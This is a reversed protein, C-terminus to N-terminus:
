RRRRSSQSTCSDSLRPSCGHRLLLSDFQALYLELEDSEIDSVTTVSRVDLAALNPMSGTTGCEMEMDPLPHTGYDTFFRTLESEDSSTLSTISLPLTPTLSLQECLGEDLLVASSRSFTRPTEAGDEDEAEGMDLVEDIDEDLRDLLEGLSSGPVDEQRPTVEEEEEAEEEGEGDSVDFEVASRAKKTPESGRAPAPSKKMAGKSSTPEIKSKPSPSRAAAKPSHSRAARQPSPGHAARRPSPSRAKPKTPPQPLTHKHQLALAVPKPRAPAAKHKPKPAAAPKQPAPQARPRSTSRSGQSRTRSNTRQRQRRCPRRAGTARRGATWRHVLRQMRLMAVVAWAAARFKRVPKLLRRYDPLFCGGTLQVMKELTLTETEQYGGLLIMLYRKQWCLARRYSEARMYRSYAEQVRGDDGEGQTSVPAPRAALRLRELEADLQDIHSQLLSRERGWQARESELQEKYRALIADDVASEVAADAPVPSPAPAPAPSPEDDRGALEAALQLLRTRTREAETNIDVVAAVATLLQAATRSLEAVARGHDAAPRQVDEAATKHAAQVQRLEQQLRKLKGQLPKVREAATTRVEACAEDVQTELKEAQQEQETVRQELQQASRGGSEAQGRGQDLEQSLQAARGRECEVCALMDRCRQQEAGLQEALRQVAGRGSRKACLESVREGAGDLKALCAQVRQLDQCGTDTTRILEQMIKDERDVLQQTATKAAAFEHLQSDLSSRTQDLREDGKRLESLAQALDTEMASLAGRQESLRGTLALKSKHEGDLSTQMERVQSLEEKLDSSLKSVKDNLSDQKRKLESVLRAVARRLTATEMDSVEVASDSAQSRPTLQSPSAYAKVFRLEMLSLAQLGETHLKTLLQQLRRCLQPDLLEDASSEEATSALPTDDAPRAVSTRRVMQVLQAEVERRREQETRKESSLQDLAREMARAREGAEHAQEKWHKEDHTLSELEAVRGKLYANEANVDSQDAPREDSKMDKELQAVRESYEQLRLMLEEVRAEKEAVAARSEELQRALQDREATLQGCQQALQQLQQDGAAQMRQSEVLRQEMEASRSQFSELQTIYSDIEKKANELEKGLHSETQELKSVTESATQLRQTLDGQDDAGASSVLDELRSLLDQIQRDKSQSEDEVLHLRSELSRLRQLLDEIDNHASEVSKSETALSSAPQYDEPPPETKSGMPTFYDARPESPPEKESETKESGSRRSHASTPTPVSIQDDMDVLPPEQYDEVFQAGRPERYPVSARHTWPLYCQQDGPRPTARGHSSASTLSLNPQSPATTCMEEMSYFRNRPVRVAPVSDSTRGRRRSASDESESSSTLKELFAPLNPSPTLPRQEGVTGTAAEFIRELSRSTDPSPGDFNEASEAAAAPAPSAAGAVDAFVRQFGYIGQAPEYGVTPRPTIAPSPDASSVAQSGLDQSSRLSALSARDHGYWMQPPEYGQPYRQYGYEGQAPEYGEGDAVQKPEQHTMYPIGEEFLAAMTRTTDPSVLDFNEDSAQRVDAQPLREQSGPTPPTPVPADKVHDWRLGHTYQLSPLDERSSPTDPTQPWDKDPRDWRIGEMYKEMLDTTPQAPSGETIDERSRPTSPTPPWNDPCQWVCLNQTYTGDSPPMHELSGRSPPGLLPQFGYMGSAPIYEMSRSAPPTEASGISTESWRSLDDQCTAALDEAVVEVPGGAATTGGSPTGEDFIKALTKTTDPQIADFDEEAAGSTAPAPEAAPTPEAAEQGPLSARDHGYWMQPPEYGQPYRQYGYEGQAPEYPEDGGQGAGPPSGDAGSGTGSDFEDTKVPYPTEDQFIRALTKKTDPSVSEYDEDKVSTQNEIPETASGSFDAADAPAQGPLSARDHGYWMQPPEYGQPYRQYGYEGQAPEYPESDPRPKDGGEVSLAGHELIEALTKTTDPSIYDFDTADQSLPTTQSIDTKPQQSIGQDPLSARDHGYWMQPPEYGQPYRQYGYEGQAPEYPEDGGDGPGPPGGDAGGGGDSGEAEVPYPTEEQFLRALTKKTDPSVSEYDEGDEPVTHGFSEATEGGSAPPGSPAQGPLSARDHGYWMQPPEYGQPYRQYGYEGQAPEYGFEAAREPDGDRPSSFPESCADATRQLAERPLCPQVGEYRSMLRASRTPFQERECYASAPRSDDTLSHGSPTKSYPEDAEPSFGPELVRVTQEHDSEAEHESASSDGLMENASQFPTYYDEKSCCEQPPTYYISSAEYAIGEDFIRQLSAATYPTPGDYDASDPRPEYLPTATSDGTPATYNSAPRVNWPLNVDRRPSGDEQTQVLTESSSHEAPPAAVSSGPRSQARVLTERSPPAPTACSSGPWDTPGTWALGSTYGPQQPPAGHRVVVTRREADVTVTDGALPTPPSPPWHLPGRTYGAGFLAQGSSPRSQPVRAMMQQAVGRIREESAPGPSDLQDRSRSPTTRSAPWDAATDWRLGQTYGTAPPPSQGGATGPTATSGPWHLPADAPYSLGSMYAIDASDSGGSQTRRAPWAGLERPAPAARQANKSRRAYASHQLSEEAAPTPPTQDGTNWHAPSVAQWGLNTAYVLPIASDSVGQRAGPAAASGPEPRGFARGFASSSRLDEAGLMAADLEQDYRQFATNSRLDEAGMMATESPESSTASPPGVETGHDSSAPEDSTTTQSSEYGSSPHPTGAEFVRRLSTSTYPTPGDYPADDFAHMNQGGGGGGGGGPSSGPAGAPGVAPPVVGAGAGGGGPGPTPPTAGGGGGGPPLFYYNAAPRMNWPLIVDHDSPSSTASLPRAYAGDSTDSGAPAGGAGRAPFGGGGGGGGGGSSWPAMPDHSECAFPPRAPVESAYGSSTGQDSVYGPAADLMTEGRRRAHEIVAVAEHMMACTDLKKLELEALTSALRAQLPRRQDKLAQAQAGSEHSGDRLLQDRRADLQAIQQELGHREAELSDIASRQDAIDGMLKMNTESATMKGDSLEKATATYDADLQAIIPSLVELRARLVDLKQHLRAPDDTAEDSHSDRLPAAGDLQRKRAVLAEKKQQLAEKMGRISGGTAASAPESGTSAAYSYGGGSVTPASGLSHESQPSEPRQPQLPLSDAM